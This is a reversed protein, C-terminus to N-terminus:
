NLLWEKVSGPDLSQMPLRIGQASSEMTPPTIAPHDIHIMDQPADYGVVADSSSDRLSKQPTLCPPDSCESAETVGSLVLQLQFLTLQPGTYLKGTM